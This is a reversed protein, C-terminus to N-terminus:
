KILVYSTRCLFSTKKLINLVYKRQSIFSLIKSYPIEKGLFEKLKELDKIEFQVVLNEKLVSKEIEDDGIM